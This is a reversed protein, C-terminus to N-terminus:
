FPITEDVEIGDIFDSYDFRPNDLPKDKLFKQIELKQEETYESYATDYFDVYDPSKVEEPFM